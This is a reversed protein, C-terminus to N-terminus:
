SFMRVPLILYTFTDKEVGRVICPSLASNFNLRIFDESINRLCDIFYKANFAIELSKGDISAPIEEYFDGLDGVCSVAIKGEDISFKIQNNKSQAILSAREICQAFSPAFVQATTAFENSLTSRYRFFEGDLLRTVIRTNDIDILMHGAKVYITVPDEREDLLRAVEALSRAPVVFSTKPSPETLGASRLALRYGDLAVLRIEEDEVEVLEGTLIPRSEDTAVSFITGNIMSRLIDRRVVIGPADSVEPLTPFDDANLAALNIKSGPYSISINLGATRIEVPGDPLKRVIDCIMKGPLVTAGAERVDAQITTRISLALDTAALTLEEEGAQMYIGELIPQNAKVATAKAVVSLADALDNKECIFFM